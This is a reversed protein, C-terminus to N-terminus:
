RLGQNPKGKRCDSKQQFYESNSTFDDFRLGAAVKVVDCIYGLRIFLFRLSLPLREGTLEGFSVLILLSPSIGVLPRFLVNQNGVPRCRPGHTLNHEKNVFKM